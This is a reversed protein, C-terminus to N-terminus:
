FEDGSFQSIKQCSTKQLLKKVNSWKRRVFFPLDSSPHVSVFAKLYQSTKPNAANGSGPYFMKGSKDCVGYKKNIHSMEEFREKRAIVSAAQCAVYKEDARHEFTVVNGNQELKNLFSKLGKKIGYDDIAVHFKEKGMTVHKLLEEYKQDLLTNKSNKDMESASCRIKFVSCYMQMKKYKERIEYESLDKINPTDLIQRVNKLNKADIVACGLFMSGFTEGAGSEDCGIFFKMKSEDVSMEQKSKDPADLSLKESIDSILQQYATNTPSSQFLLTGKKYYHIRISESTVDFSEKLGPLDKKILKIKHRSKIFVKIQLYHSSSINKFTHYSNM